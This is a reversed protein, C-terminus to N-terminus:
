SDKLLRLALRRILTRNSESLRHDMYLRLEIAKIKAVPLESMFVLRQFLFVLDRVGTRNNRSGNSTRVMGVARVTKPVSPAFCSATAFSSLKPVKAWPTVRFSPILTLADPM